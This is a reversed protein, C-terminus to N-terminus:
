MGLVDLWAQPSTIQQGETIICPTLKSEWLKFHGTTKRGSFGGAAKKTGCCLRHAPTSTHPQGRPVGKSNLEHERVLHSLGPRMLSWLSCENNQTHTNMACLSAPIIEKFFMLSSWSAKAETVDTTYILLSPVSNDSADGTEESLHSKHASLTNCLSFLVTM